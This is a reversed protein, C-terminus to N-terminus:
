APLTKFRYETVQVYEEGAPLLAQAFAEHHIADPHRQPELCCGAFPLLPGPPEGPGSGLKQGDYFQLGPETTWIEMALDGSPSMLMAARRPQQNRERSLVFNHDYGIPSLTRREGIRRMATFDFCTGAVPLIRGDPILREDVPTYHDADILLGHDLVSRGPELSFYAHGALNVLTPADSLASLTLRLCAPPLVEYRCTVVLNGPYGQDGDESHLELEVATASRATLTWRRRSFGVSGGHLHTIGAENCDLQHTRGAIVCHGDRIRNACRGAIAGLYHPNHHYAEPSPLGLIVQRPGGPMEVELNYLAAGLALVTASLGSGSIAFTTADTDGSM